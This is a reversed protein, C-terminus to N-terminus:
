ERQRGSDWAVRSAVHLHFLMAADRRAEGEVEPPASPRDCLQGAHDTDRRNGVHARDVRSFAGNGITETVAGQFVARKDM